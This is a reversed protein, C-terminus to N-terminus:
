LTRRRTSHRPAPGGSEGMGERVSRSVMPRQELGMLQPDGHSRVEVEPHPPPPPLAQGQMGAVLQAMTTAAQQIVQAAAQFDVAQIPATNVPLPACGGDHNNNIQGRLDGELRDGGHNSNLQERLDGSPHGKNM